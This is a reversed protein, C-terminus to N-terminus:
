LRIKKLRKRVASTPINMAERYKAVTRRAIDIGRSKLIRAIEDDSIIEVEEEILTKIQHKATESSFDAGDNTSNLATTFFYRLEYLGRPTAMYKNAVVRGITSEHLGVEAAIERMSIPKLFNIGKEFFQEQHAVIAEGVRMMTDCRQQVARVLFSASNYNETVYKKDDGKLKNAKIRNYYDRRVNIKPLLEINLDLEWRGGRKELILDAHRTQAKDESFGAGPRPNLSKIEKIMEMLDEASVFCIKMLKDLEGKALIELNDVLREIAPDLTQKEDLQIKLCEKLGRSAVGLPDFRQLRRLVKEVDDKECGLQKALAALDDNITESALYGSADIMDIIHQAIIKDKSDEMDLNVQELLHEKLSIEKTYTREIITGADDEGNNGYYSDDSSYESGSIENNSNWDDSGNDLMQEGSGPKDNELGDYSDKEFENEPAEDAAQAPEKEQQDSTEELLPNKELEQEIFQALDTTSLQLIRLSQQMSQTMVLNQSQRLVLNQTQSVM